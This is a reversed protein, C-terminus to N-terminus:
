TSLIFIFATDVDSGANNATVVTFSNSAITLVIAHLADNGFPTPVIGYSTTGLNHTVTYNGASNRVSSWGSPLSSATGDGNVTGQYQVAGGGIQRWLANTLDYYYLIGSTTDLAISDRFNKPSYTPIGTVMPLNGWVDELNVDPDKTQSQPENYGLAADTAQAAAEISATKKQEETTAM